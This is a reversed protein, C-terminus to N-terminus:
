YYARCKLSLFRFSQKFYDNGYVFLYALTVNIIGTDSVLM